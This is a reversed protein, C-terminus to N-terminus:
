AAGAGGAGGGKQFARAVQQVTTLLLCFAMAGAGLFLGWIMGVAAAYRVVGTVRGPAFLGAVFEPSVVAVLCAFAGGLAASALAAALIYLFYRVFTM